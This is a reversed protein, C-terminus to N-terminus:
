IAHEKLEIKIPIEQFKLRIKIILYKDTFNLRFSSVDPIFEQARHDNIKLYLSKIKERNKFRLYLKYIQDKSRIELVDSLILLNKRFDNSMDIKISDSEEIIEKIFLYFTQINNQENAIISQKLYQDKILLYSSFISMLIITSLTASIVIELTFFGSQTTKNKM